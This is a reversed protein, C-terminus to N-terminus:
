EVGWLPKGQANRLNLVRGHQKLTKALLIKREQVFFVEVEIEERPIFLIGQAHVYWEPGVDVVYEEGESNFFFQIYPAPKTVLSFKQISIIHGKLKLVKKSTEEEAMLFSNLFLFFILIRM